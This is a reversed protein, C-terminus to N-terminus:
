AYTCLRNTEGESRSRTTAQSLACGNKSRIHCYALRGMRQQPEFVERRKSIRAALPLKGWVYLRHHLCVAKFIPFVDLRVGTTSRDREFKQEVFIDRSDADVIDASRYERKPIANEAM